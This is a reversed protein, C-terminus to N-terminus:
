TVENLIDDVLGIAFVKQKYNQLKVMNNRNNPIFKDEVKKIYQGRKEFELFNKKYVAYGGYFLVSPVMVIYLLKEAGRFSFFGKM